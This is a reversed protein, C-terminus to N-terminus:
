IDYAHIGFVSEIGSQNEQIGVYWPPTTGVTPDTGRLITRLNCVNLLNNMKLLWHFNRLGLKRVIM